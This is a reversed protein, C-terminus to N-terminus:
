PAIGARELRVGAVCVLVGALAVLGAIVADSRAVGVRAVDPLVHAVLALAAGCVGAGVLASAKGLAVLRAISIATMAKVAQDRGVVRRVRRALVLEAGGLAALPLPTVASLAPLDGYAVRLVLYCALGVGVLVAALDGARTRNM